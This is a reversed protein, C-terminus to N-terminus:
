EGESTELYEETCKECLQICAGASNWMMLPGDGDAIHRFCVSCFPAIKSDPRSWTLRKINFGPKFRLPM